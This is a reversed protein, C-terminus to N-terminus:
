NGTELVWWENINAYIDNVVPKIEGQVRSGTLVASKRFVLSIVPLEEAIRRQVEKTAAAFADDNAASHAQDLLADLDADGYSFYNSTYLDGSHFAFSLDPIPSLYFGGIFLDFDRDTLRQQYKDYPVSEITVSVGVQELNKKLMDALKAREMNEENVLLRFSAPFKQGDATKELVGNANRTFGSDSLAITAKDTNFAYQTVDPDYLWSEPSIPALARAAHGQYFNNVVDTTDVVYAVAQRVSLDQLLPNKFNFGIFDFYTTLYETARTEKAGRYKGWDALPASAADTLGADFSYLSTESDPTIVANIESIYPKPRFTRNNATLLMNQMTTYSVFTYLGNGLPKMNKDSGPDTEGSYYAEPLIPFCLLYAAGGFPQILHLVATRSDAATCGAMDAALPRYVAGEPANKLMQVSFVIDQATVPSGDSWTLGDRLTLTISLGDPAIEFAALNAAVRQESDIVTLPEFLLRLIADVSPDTNLLPNLTKPAAMPLRLSGGAKPKTERVTAAPTAAPSPSPIDVNQVLCATLFLPLLLLSFVKKWNKM